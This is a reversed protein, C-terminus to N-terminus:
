IFATKIKIETFTTNWFGNHENEWNKDLAILSM